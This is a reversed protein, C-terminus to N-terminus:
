GQGTWIGKSDLRHQAPHVAKRARNRESPRRVDDAYAPVLVIAVLYVLVPAVLAIVLNRMRGSRMNAAALIAGALTVLAVLGLGPIVVHDDVYRVGSFLNHAELLLAFRGLYTQGAIGLLLVSLALSVGRLSVANSALWLLIAAILGIIGIGIFWAAASDLVPLTFFYFSLPKGLIPDPEGSVPGRNVFLAFRSWDSSFALGALFGCVGAVPLALKKLSDISPLAIMERGFEVIYPKSGAVPAVLRFLGWLALATAIGFVLFVAVQAKVGYWYVSAYGLSGFWLSDVYYSLSQSAGVILVVIVVLLVVLSRNM